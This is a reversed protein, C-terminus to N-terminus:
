RPALWPAQIRVKRYDVVVDRGRSQGFSDFIRNRFDPPFAASCSSLVPTCNNRRSSGAVTNRPRDPVLYSSALNLRPKHHNGCTSGRPVRLTPTQYRYAFDFMHQSFEQQNLFDCYAHRPELGPQGPYAALSMASAMMPSIPVAPPVPYAISYQPSATSASLM